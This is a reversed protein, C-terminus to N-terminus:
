TKPHNRRADELAVHGRSSVEVEQGSRGGLGDTSADGLGANGDVHEVQLDLGKLVDRTGYARIIAEDDTLPSRCGMSFRAPHKVDTM